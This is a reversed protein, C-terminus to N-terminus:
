FQMPPAGFVTQLLGHLRGAIWPTLVKFKVIMLGDPNLLSRAARLAEVTYVYNDTRINSYYSNTTHSDLLSFVIFDFRDGTNQIYSRADNVIVRVRPAGYPKEFHLDRGLQVILPDIEVATVQGAGNRLAAAVDNGTGSGLVLVTPPAPYFHYPLNYTSWQAAGHPFLQPHSAVFAPSLNVIQQYWSDNTAVQYSITEAGDRIPTVTLKQYPSWHVTSGSNGAVAALFVS